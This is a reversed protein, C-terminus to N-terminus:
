TVEQHLSVDVPGLELLMSNETYANEEDSFLVAGFNSHVTRLSDVQHGNECRKESQVKDLWVFHSNEVETFKRSTLVSKLNAMRTSVQPRKLSARDM